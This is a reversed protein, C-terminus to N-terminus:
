SEDAFYLDYDELAACIISITRPGIGPLAAFDRKSLSIMEGITKDPLVQSVRNVAAALSRHRKIGEPSKLAGIPLNLLEPGESLVTPNNAASYTDALCIQRCKQYAEKSVLYTETSLGSFFSVVKAM